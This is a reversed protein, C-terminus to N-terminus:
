EDKKTLKQLMGTHKSYELEKKEVEVKKKKYEQILAENKRM